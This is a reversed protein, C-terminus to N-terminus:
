NFGFKLVLERTIAEMKKVGEGAAFACFKEWSQTLRAATGYSLAGRKAAASLVIRGAVDLNRSLGYNRSM